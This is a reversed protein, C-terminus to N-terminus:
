AERGRRAGVRGTNTFLSIMGTSASCNVCVSLMSGGQRSVVKSEYEPSTVVGDARWAGAFGVDRSRM